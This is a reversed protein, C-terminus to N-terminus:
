LSSLKIDLSGGTPLQLETSLGRLLRLNQSSAVTVHVEDHGGLAIFFKFFMMFLHELQFVIESWFITWMKWRFTGFRESMTSSTEENRRKEYGRRWRNVEEGKGEKRWSRGTPQAKKCPASMWCPGIQCSASAPAARSRWGLTQNLRSLQKGECHGVSRQLRQLERLCSEKRTRKLASFFFSSFFFKGFSWAGHRPVSVSWPERCPPMPARWQMQKRPVEVFVCGRWSASPDLAQEVRHFHSAKAKPM